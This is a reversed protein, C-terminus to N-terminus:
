TAPQPFKDALAVFNASGLFDVQAGAKAKMPSVAPAAGNITLTQELAVSEELAAGRMRMQQFGGRNVWGYGWVNAVLDAPFERYRVDVTVYNQNWQGRLWQFQKPSNEFSASATSYDQRFVNFRQQWHHPLFQDLSADYLTAVMEAVAKENQSPGRTATGSKDQSPLMGDRRT